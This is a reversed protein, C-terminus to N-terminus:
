LRSININNSKYFTGRPSMANTLRFTSASRHCSPYLQATLYRYCIRLKQFAIALLFM